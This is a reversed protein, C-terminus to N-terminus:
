RNRRSRPATAAASERELAQRLQSEPGSCISLVRCPGTEAALYAHGMGSDFYISDGPRMLLPAYLETHFAVTGELVYAYEEGPHRIFDGFEELSHARLEAIIPVFRKNLFDTAPYIHGYNGTEIVQGQGGLTISRRGIVTGPARGLPPAFLQSIDVGLSASLLALKDYNLSVRENEIKSLTSIPLGTRKSVEALTWGRQTRLAKLAAGPHATVRGDSTRETRRPSRSIMPPM